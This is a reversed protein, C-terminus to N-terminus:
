PTYKEIRSRAFQLFEPNIDIGTGEIGLRKCAVLTTGSGIFPDLVHVDKKDGVALKICKEALEVPFSAPHDGKESKHQITEYKIFWTNGRCRVDPKEIGTKEVKKSREKLNSKHMYPVGIALRELKIDGKKTFHLITENTVNLFRHSNIPKFHGYSIDDISINKVWTINNQLTFDNRLKQAVDMSIWPEVNSYGINIFLSGEDKLVRKCEQFVELLWDLYKDMPKKDDVKKGYDKGINYPPSTVICDFKKDPMEKLKEVVDGELLNFVPSKLGLIENVKTEVMKEVREDKKCPTKRNIHADYHSKQKFFRECIECQREGM